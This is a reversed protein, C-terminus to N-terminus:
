CYFKSHHTIVHFQFLEKVQSLHFFISTFLCKILVEDYHLPQHLLLYFIHKQCQYQIQCWVFVNKISKIWYFILLLNLLMEWCWYILNLQCQPVQVNPGHQPRLVPHRGRHRVAPMWGVPLTLCQPINHNCHVHQHLLSWHDSVSPLHCCWCTM